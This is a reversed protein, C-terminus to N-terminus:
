GGRTQGSRGRRDRGAGANTAFKKDAAPVTGMKGKTATGSQGDMNDQGNAALGLPSLVGTALLAALGFYRTKM